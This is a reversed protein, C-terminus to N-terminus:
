AFSDTIARSTNTSFIRSCLIVLALLKMPKEEQAPIAISEPPPGFLRGPLKDGVYDIWPAPLQAVVRDSKSEV